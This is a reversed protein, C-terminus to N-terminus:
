IMSNDAVINVIGPLNHLVSSCCYLLTDFSRFLQFCPSMLSLPLKQSRRLCLGRPPRPAHHGSFKSIQFGQFAMVLVRLGTALDFQFTGEKWDDKIKPIM